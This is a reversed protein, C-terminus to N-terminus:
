HDVLKSREDSMVTGTNDIESRVIFLLVTVKRRIRMEREMVVNDVVEWFRGGFSVIIGGHGWVDNGIFVRFSFLDSGGWSTAGPGGGVLSTTMWVRRVLSTTMWIAMRCSAVSWGRLRASGLTETGAADTSGASCLTSGLISVVIFSSSSSM